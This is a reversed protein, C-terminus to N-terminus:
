EKIERLYTYSNNKIFNISIDIGDLGMKKAEEAWDGVSMAGSAVDAFLSVPLCSLKM